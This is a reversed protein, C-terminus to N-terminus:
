FIITTMASGIKEGSPSIGVVQIYVAIAKIVEPPIAIATGKIEFTGSKAPGAPKGTVTPTFRHASYMPDGPSAYCETSGALDSIALSYDTQQDNNIVEVLISAAIESTQSNGKRNRGTVTIKLFPAVVNITLSAGVTSLEGDEGGSVSASMYPAYTLTNSTTHMTKTIPQAATAQVTITTPSTNNNGQMTYGETGGPITWGEFTAKDNSSHWSATVQVPPGGPSVTVESPVLAVNGYEAERSDGCGAVILCCLISVAPLKLGYIAMFNRFFM